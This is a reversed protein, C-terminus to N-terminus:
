RLRPYLAAIIRLRLCRTISTAGAKMQEVTREPTLVSYRGTARLEDLDTVTNYPGPKDAQTRWEGYANTEHLFYPAM